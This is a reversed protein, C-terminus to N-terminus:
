ENGKEEVENSSDELSVKINEFNEFDVDEPSDSSSFEVEIGVAEAISQTVTRLSLLIEVLPEKALIIAGEVEELEGIVSASLANSLEVLYSIVGLAEVGEKSGENQDVEQELDEVLVKDTDKM